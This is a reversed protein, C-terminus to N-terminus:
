KLRSRFSTGATSCALKVQEEMNKRAEVELIKQGFDFKVATIEPIVSLAKKMLEGKAKDLKDIIYQQKKAIAMFYITSM